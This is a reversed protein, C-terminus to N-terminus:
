SLIVGKLLIKGGKKDQETADMNKSGLCSSPFCNKELPSFFFLCAANNWDLAQMTNSNQLFTSVNKSLKTSSLDSSILVHLAFCFYIRVSFAAASSVLWLCTVSFRQASTVM